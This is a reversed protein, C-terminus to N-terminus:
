MSTVHDGPAYMYRMGDQVEVSWTAGTTMCVCIAMQCINFMMMISIAIYWGREGDEGRGWERRGEEEEGDEGRGGGWGGRERRGVGWGGKERRGM